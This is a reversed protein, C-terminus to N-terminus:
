HVTTDSSMLYAIIFPFNVLDIDGKLISNESLFKDFEPFSIEANAPLDKVSGLIFRVASRKADKSVDEKWSPPYGLISFHDAYNADKYTFRPDSMVMARRMNRYPNAFSWVRVGFYSHWRYSIPDIWQGTEMRKDGLVSPNILNDHFLPYPLTSSVGVEPSLKASVCEALFRLRRMILSQFFDRYTFFGDYHKEVLIPKRGNVPKTGIQISALISFIRRGIKFNAHISM